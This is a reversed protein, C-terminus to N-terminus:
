NEPWTLNEGTEIVFPHFTGATDIWSLTAGTRDVGYTTWDENPWLTQFKDTGAEIRWHGLSSRSGKQAYITTGVARFSQRYPAGHWLGVTTNGSILAAIQSGTLPDATAQATLCVLALLTRM